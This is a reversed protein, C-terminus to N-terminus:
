LTLVILRISVYDVSLGYSCIGPLKGVFTFSAIVGLTIFSLTLVCQEITIVTALGALFLFKIITRPKVCQLNQLNLYYKISSSRLFLLRNVHEM